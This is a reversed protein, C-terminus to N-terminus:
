PVWLMAEFFHDGLSWVLLPCCIVLMYGSYTSAIAAMLQNVWNITSCVPTAPVPPVPLWLVAHPLFTSINVSHFLLKPSRVAPKWVWSSPVWHPVSALFLAQISVLAPAWHAVSGPRRYCVVLGPSFVTELVAAPWPICDWPSKCLSQAPSHSWPRRHCSSSIHM